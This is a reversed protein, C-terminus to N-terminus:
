RYSLCTRAGVRCTHSADAGPATSSRRCSRTHQSTPWPSQPRCPPVIAREQHSSLPWTAPATVAPMVTPRMNLITVASHHVAFRTHRGGVCWLPNRRTFKDPPMRVARYMQDTMSSHASAPTANMPASRSSPTKLMTTPTSITRTAQKMLETTSHSDRGSAVISSSASVPTILHTSTTRCRLM